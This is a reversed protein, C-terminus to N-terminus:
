IYETAGTLSEMFAKFLTNLKNRYGLLAINFKGELNVLIKGDKDFIAAALTIQQAKNALRKKQQQAFLASM